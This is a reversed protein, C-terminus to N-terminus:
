AFGVFTSPRWGQLLERLWRREEENLPGPPDRGYDIRSAFAGQEFSRTFAAQLDIVTDREHAALPMRFRPLRKQLTATYIEFRDPKSFRWVTVAYRWDPLGERSYDLMPQGQAVLDIDVLNAGSERALRRCALYAHRGAETTRNPPSVFDLLTVLKDDARQCIEIFEEDYNTGDISYQRHGIRAKYRDDLRPLLCQYATRVLWHHLNLWLAADELYPNMGPFPNNM